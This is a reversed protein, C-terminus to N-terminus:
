LGYHIGFTMIVGGPQFFKIANRVEDANAQGAVITWPDKQLAKSFGLEALFVLRKGFHRNYITSVNITSVPLENVEIDTVTPAGSGVQTGIQASLTEQKFGLSYSYGAALSWGKRLHVSRNFDYKIGISYKKGWFGWGFGLRANLKPQVQFFSSLGLISNLSNFGWNSGIYVIPVKDIHGKPKSRKVEETKTTTINNCISDYDTMVELYQRSLYYGFNIRRAIVKCDKFDKKTFSPSDHNNENLLINGIIQFEWTNKNGLFYNPDDIEVGDLRTLLRDTGLRMVLRCLMTKSSEYIIETLFIRNNKHIIAFNWDPIRIELVEDISFEKDAIPANLKKEYQFKIKFAQFNVILDLLKGKVTEGNALLISGEIQRLFLLSDIRQSHNASVKDYEYINRGYKKYYENIVYREKSIAIKRAIFYLSLYNHELIIDVYQLAHDYDDLCRYIAALNLATAHHRRRSKKSKLNNQKLDKELFDINPKIQELLVRTSYGIHLDHLSKEIIALNQLYVPSCGKTHYLSVFNTQQEVEEKNFHGSLLMIDNRNNPLSIETSRLKWVEQAHIHPLCQLILFAGLLIFKNM